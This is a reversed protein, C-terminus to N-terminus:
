YGWNGGYNYAGTNMGDNLQYVWLLDGYVTDHYVVDLSNTYFGNNMLWQGNMPISESIAITKKSVPISKTINFNNNEIVVYGPNNIFMLGIMQNTVGINFTHDGQIYSNRIETSEGGDIYLLGFTYSLTGSGSVNNDYNSCTELFVHSDKAYFTQGINVSVPTECDNDFWETNWLEVWSGTDFYFASGKKATNQDIESSYMKFTSNQSYVAGGMDSNNSEIISNYIEMYSDLIYIGGGKEGLGLGTARILTLGEVRCYSIGSATLIHKVISSGNIITPYSLPNQNIFDSSFGGYIQIGSRLVVPATISYTGQAINVSYTGISNAFDIGKQVSAFPQSRYGKGTSDNGFPAVYVQPYVKLINTKVFKNGAMDWALIVNTVTGGGPTNYNMWCGVYKNFMDLSSNATVGFIPSMMINSVIGLGSLDDMLTIDQNVWETNAVYANNTYRVYELKPPISDSIIQHSLTYNTKFTSSIAMAIVTNTKNLNILTNTNSWCFSTGSYNVKNILTWAGNNVKIKIQSISYGADVSASGYVLPTNGMVASKLWNSMTILPMDPAVTVSITQTLSTNGVGDVAYVSVTHDGVTNGSSIFGWSTGAKAASSYGMADITYYVSWDNIWTLADYADIIGSITSPVEMGATPYLLTCVPRQQDVVVRKDQPWSIVGKGSVAYITVINQMNKFLTVTVSWNNTGSAINTIKINTNDGSTVSFVNSIYGESIDATGYFYASPQNTYTDYNWPQNITVWPTPVQIYFDVGKNSDLGNVGYATISLHKWN